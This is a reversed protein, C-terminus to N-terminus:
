YPICARCGVCQGLPADCDCENGCEKCDHGEEEATAKCTECNYLGHHCHQGSGPVGANLQKAPPIYATMPVPKHYAVFSRAVEETTPTIAYISSVGFLKTFAPSGDVSPVDVRILSAGGFVQETVKGAFSQRGMIEVIAYCDFKEAEEKM